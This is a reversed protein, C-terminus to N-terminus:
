GGYSSQGGYASTTNNNKPKALTDAETIPLEGYAFYKKQNAANNQNLNNGYASSSTAYPNSTGGGVGPYGSAGSGGSFSPYGSASQSSSTSSTSATGRINM